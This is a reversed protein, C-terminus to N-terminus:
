KKEFKEEFFFVIRIVCFKWRKIKIKQKQKNWIQVNCCEKMEDIGNLM